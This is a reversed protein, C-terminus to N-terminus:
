IHSYIRGNKSLSGPISMHNFISLSNLICILVTNAQFLIGVPRNLIINM